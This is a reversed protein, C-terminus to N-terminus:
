GKYIGFRPRPKWNAFTADFGEIFRKSMAEGTFGNQMAWERGLKGRRRREEPSMRYAELLKDAVERWDCRDDFIYPTPPSGNLSLNNPFAPLCWEGHNKYKGDHNSGWDKNYHKDADLPNGHEDVFGMQDQLGGTVNAITLRETMMAELNSLGFGENSAMNIVVDVCNYEINMLAPPVRSESFVFKVDPAVDRFVAMLDTGNDDVPQTHLVLRCREAKDKPLSRIFKQYALVVDGTMKRRINRNNYYVAFDVEQGRFMQSRYSALVKQGEVDDDAIRKFVNPNVGHANYQIQWPEWKPEKQWVQKVINYTQKSICSIFDCSRYFNENYKPFPLDDWIHYFMIPIAERIEAEMHYLWIWYRPDTFHLIADPKEQMLLYRIIGPDGYGNFPYIHLYADPIGLDKSLSDSAELMKGMDPHNVGAGLQVWNYRHATGVVMEKSQTGVGSPMRLDDSLLLIKKRQDRPIYGEPLPKIPSASGTEFPLLTPLLHMEPATM